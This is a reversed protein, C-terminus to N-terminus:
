KDLAVPTEPFSASPQIEQELGRKWYKTSSVFISGCREERINEGEKRGRGIKPPPTPAPTSITTSLLM